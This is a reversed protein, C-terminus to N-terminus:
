GIIVVAVYGEPLRGLCEYFAAIGDSMARGMEPEDTGSFENFYVQLDAEQFREPDLKQGIAAADAPTLISHTSCRTQTLFAAL